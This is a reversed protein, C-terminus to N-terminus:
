ADRRRKRSASSSSTTTTTTSQFPTESDEDDDMCDSDGRVIPLVTELLQSVKGLMYRARTKYELVPGTMNSVFTRVESCVAQAKTRHEILHKAEWENHLADRSAKLQEIKADLAHIATLDKLAGAEAETMGETLEVARKLTKANEDLALGLDSTARRADVAAIKHESELISVVFRKQGNYVSMEESADRATDLRRLASKYLMKGSSCEQTAARLAAADHTLKEPETIAPLQIFVPDVLEPKAAAM